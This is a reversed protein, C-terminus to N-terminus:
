FSSRQALESALDDFLTVAVLGGVLGVIALGATRVRQDDSAEGFKPWAVQLAAIAVLPVFLGLSYLFTPALEAWPEARANNLVNALERGVCPIWTWAALFAVGITATVDWALSDRRWAVVALTLLGLGAFVHGLGSPLPTWWGTFRLWAILSVTVIWTPVLWVRRRGMLAVGLAPILLVLSCALKLSEIGEAFIGM